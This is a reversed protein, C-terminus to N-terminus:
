NEFQIDDDPNLIPQFWNFYSFVNKKIHYMLYIGVMLILSYILTVIWIIGYDADYQDISNLERFSNFISFIFWIIGPLFFRGDFKWINITIYISIILSFLYKLDFSLMLDLLGILELVIFLGWIISVVLHKTKFKQKLEYSPRSALIKRLSEQEFHDKYHEFLKSKSTGQNIEDIIKSKLAKETM